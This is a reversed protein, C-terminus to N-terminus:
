SAVSHLTKQVADIKILLLSQWHTSLSAFSLERQAAQLIMIVLLSISISLCVPTQKTTILSTYLHRKAFVTMQRVEVSVNVAQMVVLRQAPNGASRSPDTWGREFFAEASDSTWGQLVQVLSKRYHKM